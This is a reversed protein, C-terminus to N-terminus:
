PHFSRLVNMLIKRENNSSKTYTEIFITLDTPNVDSATVHVTYDHILADFPVELEKAIALLVPLSASAGSEINRITGEAININQALLKVDIGKQKRLLKINKGIYKYLGNSDLEM